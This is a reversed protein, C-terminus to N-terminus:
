KRLTNSIAMLQDAAQVVQANAAFARQVLMLQIMEDSLEVNSRELGGQVLAGLGGQDPAGERMAAVDIVRYLGGDLRELADAGTVSVLTIQGLEHPQDQGPTQASIVGNAAITFNSAEEPITIQARLPLGDPGALMGDSMISLAGGRWLYTQGRPGLLEIFGDGNIALDLPAGTRVIEGQQNLAIAADAAASSLPTPPTLNAAAANADNTRALVEAFRVQSRKFSPTNINAINNALIDLADQQARLGVAAVDFAGNM